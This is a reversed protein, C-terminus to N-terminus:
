HLPGFQFVMNEFFFFKYSVGMYVNYTYNTFLYLLLQLNREYIKAPTDCYIYLINANDDNLKKDNRDKFKHTTLDPDFIVYALQLYRPRKCRYINQGFISFVKGVMKMKRM